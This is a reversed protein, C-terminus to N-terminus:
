VSTQFCSVRLNLSFPLPAESGLFHCDLEGLGERPLDLYLMLPCMGVVVTRSVSRKECIAPTECVTVFIALFAIEAMELRDTM